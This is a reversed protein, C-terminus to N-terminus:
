TSRAPPCLFSSIWPSNCFLFPRSDHERSKKVDTEFGVALLAVPLAQAPRSLTPVHQQAWSLLSVLPLVLESPSAMPQTKFSEGSVAALRIQPQSLLINDPRHPLNISLCRRASTLRHQAPLSIEPRPSQALAGTAPLAVALALFIALGQTRLTTMKTRRKSLNEEIFADDNTETGPQMPHIVWNPM